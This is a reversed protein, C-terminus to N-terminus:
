IWQTDISSIVQDIEDLSVIWRDANCVIPLYVQSRLQALYGFSIPHEVRSIEIVVTGPPAWIINSLGAGHTGVVVKATKFIAIQIEFDFEDLNLIEFGKEIFYSQIQAENGPVRGDKLRSIYLLPVNRPASIQPIVKAFDELASVDVSHPQLAAGKSAFVLKEVQTCREITEFSAGLIRLAAFV